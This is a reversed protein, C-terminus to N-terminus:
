RSSDLHTIACSLPGLALNPACPKARTLAFHAGPPLVRKPKPRSDALSPPVRVVVRRHPTNARKAFLGETIKTTTFSDLVYCCSMTGRPNFPSSLQHTSYFASCGRCSRSLLAEKESNSEGHNQYPCFCVSIAVVVSGLRVFHVPLCGWLLLGMSTKAM